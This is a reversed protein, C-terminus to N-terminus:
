ATKERMYGSAVNKKSKQKIDNSDFSRIRKLRIVTRSCFFHQSIETKRNNLLQVSKRKKELRFLMKVSRLLFPGRSVLLISCLM